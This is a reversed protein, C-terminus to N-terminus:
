MSKKHPQLSWSITHGEDVKVWRVIYSQALFFLTLPRQPLRCAGRTRSMGQQSDRAARHRGHQPTGPRIGNWKSVRPLLLDLHYGAPASSWSNNDLCSSTSPPPYAWLLCSALGPGQPRTEQNCDTLRLRPPRPVLNRDLETRSYALSPAHLWRRLGPRCRTM